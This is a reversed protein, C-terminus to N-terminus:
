KNKRTTRRVPRKPIEPEEEEDNSVVITTDNGPQEETDSPVEIPEDNGPQEEVDVADVEGDDADEIKLQSIDVKKTPNAPVFNFKSLNYMFTFYITGASGAKEDFKIKTERYYSEFLCKSTYTIIAQTQTYRMPIQKLQGKEQKFFKQYFDGEEALYTEDADLKRNIDLYIRYFTGDDKEVESWMGRFELEAGANILSKLTAGSEPVHKKVEANKKGHHALWKKAVADPIDLKDAYKKIAAASDKEFEAVAPSPIKGNKFVVGISQRNTPTDSIFAPKKIQKGSKTSVPAVDTDNKQAKDSNDKHFSVGSVTGGSIFFTKERGTITTQLKAYGATLSEVIKNPVISM